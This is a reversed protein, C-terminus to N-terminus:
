HGETLERQQVLEWIHRNIFGRKQLEDRSLFAAGRITGLCTQTKCNCEFPTAMNWETSPYFFCLTSGEEIDTSAAFTWNAMDPSSVDFKVNPECSHNVYLLDSNLEIHADPDVDYQVSSYAKPGKTVGDLSCIVEGKRYSKQAVLYSNFEGPCRIVKVLDLHLLRDADPNTDSSPSSSESLM